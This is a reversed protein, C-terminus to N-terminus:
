AQQQRLESLDTYAKWAASRRFSEHFRLEKENLIGGSEQTADLEQWYQFRELETMRLPNPAEKKPEEQQRMEAALAERRQEILLADDAILRVPQQKEITGICESRVDDLKTLLLKERNELRKQAADDRRTQPFYQSKHKEFGATGILTGTEDHVKLAYGEADDETVYVAEGEVHALEKCYYWNGRLRIRGRQAIRPESPISVAGLVELPLQHEAVNWGNVAHWALYEYPSMHRRRGTEPDTVKPMSTHPTNNYERVKEALYQTFQKLNLLLETNGKKAYDREAALYFNKAALRDFIEHTCSPLERAAKIWLTKNLREILGRGQANGPIGTEHSIGIKGFFGYVEHTNVKAMNGAGMDTYLISPVGGFPSEPGHMAARLVATMVTEASEALGVSWGLVARSAADVVYCIEPHLPKGNRWSKITAKFSHGDCLCVELPRLEKTDREWYPKLAKYEGGTRRGKERELVGRKGNWYRVQDFTPSQMGPPLLRLMARHAEPASPRGPKHWCAMFYQAWEPDNTREADAPALAGEEAKKKWRWLTTRDITRNRGSRANAIRLAEQIVAPLIGDEAQRILENAAKAPGGLEDEIKALHRLVLTRATMVDRQWGKLEEVPQVLAPLTEGRLAPLNEAEAAEKKALAKQIDPPLQALYYEKHLGGNGTVEICPWAGKAAM